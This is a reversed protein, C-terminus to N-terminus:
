GYTIIIILIMTGYGGGGKCTSFETRSPAEVVSELEILQELDDKKPGWCKLRKQSGSFGKFTSGKSIKAIILGQKTVNIVGLDDLFRSPLEFASL